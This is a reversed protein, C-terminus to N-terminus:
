PRDPARVNVIRVAAGASAGSAKEPVDNQDIGVSCNSRSSAEDGLPRLLSSAALLSVVYPGLTAAGRRAEVRIPRKVDCNVLGTVESRRMAAM